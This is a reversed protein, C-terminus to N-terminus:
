DIYVLSESVVQIIVKFGEPRVRYRYEGDRSWRDDIGDIVGSFKKPEGNAWQEWSVKQGISFKPFTTRHTEENVVITLKQKSFLGMYRQVITLYREGVAYAVKDSM